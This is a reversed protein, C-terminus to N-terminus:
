KYVNLVGSYVSLTFCKEEQVYQLTSVIYLYMNKLEELTTSESQM